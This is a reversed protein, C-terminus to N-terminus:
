VGDPRETLTLDVTRLRNNRVLEIEVTDGPKHRFLVESFSDTQTFSDGDISIIVDDVQIGAEEAPSGATVEQIYVGTITTGDPNTLLVPDYRIGIYPYIVRGDTILTQVIQSVTNSPIAFFIGQVPGSDDDPIGLTNVGVVEGRLNLLPGGSNGPNIAADHQILNSYQGAGPFDRGIASVIGETVTNTFVGVSSGPSGIALVTQGPKLADSDGFAVTAPVEGDVKVVAIDSVIDAAILQAEREEGNAFIVRFANGGAVVHQNTIIHGDEDIIFGTGSGVPQSASGDSGPEYTGENIVTVVAPAVAEIVDVASMETNRSTTETTSDQASAPVILMGSLMMMGLLLAIPTWRKSRLKSQKVAIHREAHNTGRQVTLTKEGSLIISSASRQIDELRKRAIGWQLRNSRAACM